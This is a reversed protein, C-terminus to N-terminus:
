GTFVRRARARPEAGSRRLRPLPVAADQQADRGQLRRPGLRRPQAGASAKVYQGSRRPQQAHRHSPRRPQLRRPPDHPRHGHRPLWRHLAPGNRRSTTTIPPRRLRATGRRTPTPSQSAPPAQNATGGPTTSGPTGGPTTTDVGAVADPTPASSSTGCMSGDIVNNICASRATAPSCAARSPAGRQEALDVRAGDPQGQVRHHLRARGLHRGALLRQVALRRQDAPGLQGLGDDAHSGITSSSSRTRTARRRRPHAPGHAPSCLQLQLQRGHPDPQRSGQRHSRQRAPRARRGRRRIRDDPRAPGAGRRRRQCPRRRQPRRTPRLRAAGHRPLRRPRRQSGVSRHQHRDLRRPGRVSERHALNIAAAQAAAPVAAFACASPSHSASGERHAQLHPQVRLGGTIALLKRRREETGGHHCPRHEHPLGASESPTGHSQPDAERRPHRPRSPKSQHGLQM